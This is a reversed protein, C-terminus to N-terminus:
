NIGLEVELEEVTLPPKDAYAKKIEEAKQRLLRAKERDEVELMQQRVAWPISKKIDKLEVETVQPATVVAPKSMELLQRYVIKKEDRETELLDRLLECSRCTSPEPRILWNWFRVLM